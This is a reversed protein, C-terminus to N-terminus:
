WGSKTEPSFIFFYFFEVHGATYIVFVPCLFMGSDAIGALIYPLCKFAKVMCCVVQHPFSVTYESFCMPLVGIRLFGLSMSLSVSRSVWDTVSDGM